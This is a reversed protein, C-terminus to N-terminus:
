AAKTLLTYTSILTDTVQARMIKGGENRKSKAGVATKVLRGMQQNLSVRAREAAKETMGEGNIAVKYQAVFDKDTAAEKVVTLIFHDDFKGAKDLAQAMEVTHDIVARKAELRKALEDGKPATALIHKEVMKQMFHTMDMGAEKAQAEIFSRVSPDLAFTVNAAKALRKLKQARKGIRPAAAGKKAAKKTEAAKTKPAM